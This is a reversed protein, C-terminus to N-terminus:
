AFGKAVLVLKIGSGTLHKATIVSMKGAGLIMVTADKLSGFISRALDVAAHGISFGGRGIGTETRARKGTFIAARFLGNLIPGAADLESSLGFSDRVQGLIQPEGLVLSDLGCAVKFLHEAASPGHYTYLHKSFDARPITHLNELLSIIPESNPSPLVGYIETRNCTSLITAERVNRDKLSQLAHPVASDSIALRERVEIPATLHNLGVVVLDM